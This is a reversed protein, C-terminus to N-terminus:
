NVRAAIAAIVKDDDPAKWDFEERELMNRRSAVEKYHPLEADFTGPGSVDQWGAALVKSRHEVPVWFGRFSWGPGFTLAVEMDLESAKQIAHRVMEIWEPSLYELNGKEYWGWSSMIEVGGMGQNHMQELQWTIGEKTVASGPWWWRTHPRYSRPPLIWGAKLRDLLPESTDAWEPLPSVLTAGAAGIQIMFQRRNSM